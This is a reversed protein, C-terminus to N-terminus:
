SKTTFTNLEQQLENHMENANEMYESNPYAKKLAEFYSIATIIRDQKLQEVSNM